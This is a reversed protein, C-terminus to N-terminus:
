VLVVEELIYKGIRPKLADKMVLDVKVGTVNSLYNELAIFKLLGVSKEFEVLVDLDSDTKQGARVYSGFIGIVSVNFEDRLYPKQARLIEKIKKLNNM